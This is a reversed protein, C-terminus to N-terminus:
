TSTNLSWFEGLRYEPGLRMTWEHVSENHEYGVLLQIAAAMNFDVHWM